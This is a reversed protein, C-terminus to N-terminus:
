AKTPLTLHTYSVAMLGWVEWGYSRRATMHEATVRAVAEADLQPVRGLSAPSLLDEVLPRGPGRLWAHVPISFGQKKARARDVGYTDAALVRLLRKGHGVLGAKLPAPLRLAFEALSRDLFPSRVELGHAMSMRDSKVLIDNALYDALDARQLSALDVRGALGHRAAMWSMASAASARAPEDAALRAADPPLWTGNWTFHAEGAPYPVARLYRMLKYSTTVKAEGTPLARGAAALLRRAPGPLRATVAQHWLTAKHTLYGGFLEDGGDGSLVVKVHHSAEHALTWVALASSDALPEDAHAVIAPFHELADPTLTVPTLPIGLRDATARAGAVESHDEEAFGLCFAHALRGVRAASRAVLSSDIGSSLFVGVPVDSRLALTAARELLADLERQADAM